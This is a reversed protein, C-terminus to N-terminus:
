KYYARGEVRLDVYGPEIGKEELYHKMRALDEAQVASGRDLNMKYYENREEIFVRIERAKQAPLVVRNIRIQKSALDAELNVVFEKVRLSINDGANEDIIPVTPEPEAVQALELERTEREAKQKFTFNIAFVVVVIGILCFASIVSIYKFRRRKQDKARKRKAELTKRADGAMTQGIYYGRSKRLMRKQTRSAEPGANNSGNKNSAEGKYGGLIKM